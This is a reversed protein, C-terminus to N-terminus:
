EKGFLFLVGMVLFAIGAVRRLWPGKAIEGLLAGAAVAVLTSGVLAAAAAALVTFRSTSTASLTVTALQTKDGLEALFILAFTSGFLKWDM